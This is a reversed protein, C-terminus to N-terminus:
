PAELIFTGDPLGAPTAAGHAVLVGQVVPTAGTGIVDDQKADLAAQLGVVTSIAQTGTHNARALLFADSSNVTAGAAIGTLKTRDAATMVGANTTDAAPIIADTGTDSLVTVTTAALTRTLNAGSGGVGGGAASVIPHAPDTSDVTVNTGAVVSQVGATGTTGTGALGQPGRLGGETIVIRSSSM